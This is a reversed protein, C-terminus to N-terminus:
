RPQHRLWRDGSTTTLLAGPRVAATGIYLTALAGNRTALAANVVLIRELGRKLANCRPPTQIM